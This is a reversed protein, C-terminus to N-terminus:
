LGRVRRDARLVRARYELGCHLVAAAHDRQRIAARSLSAQPAEESDPASRVRSLLSRLRSVVQKPPNVAKMTYETVGLAAARERDAIEARASFIMVPIRRTEEADRLRRLVDFGSIKPLMLDLLIIDPLTEQACSLGKEGDEALLVQFGELDLVDKYIQRTDPDDEILLLRPKKASTNM